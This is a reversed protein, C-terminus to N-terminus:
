KLELNFKKEALFHGSEDVLRVQWDNNMTYSIVQKSATRWPDSSVNVKKRSVLQDNLLWEHYVTKGKMGKLEAFFYIGLTEKREIKLPLPLTKGPENRDIKNTLVAREVVGTAVQEPKAEQVDAKSAKNVVVPKPEPTAEEVKKSSGSDTKLEEQKVNDGGQISFLLIGLLGVIGMVLGIRKFDWEIIANSVRGTEETIKNPNPYKVKIVINKKDSM